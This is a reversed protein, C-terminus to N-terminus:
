VVEKSQVEYLLFEGIEALRQRDYIQSFDFGVTYQGLRSQRIEMVAHEISEESDLVTVIKELRDKGYFSRM